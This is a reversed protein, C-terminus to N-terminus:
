RTRPSASAADASQGRTVRQRARAADVRADARRRGRRRARVPASRAAGARRASAQRLRRPEDLRDGGAPKEPATASVTLGAGDRATLYWTEAPDGEIEQAVTFDHGRTWSPHVAYAFTRYVLEPDLSAGARAADTLTATSTQLPRLEKVHRKRGRVRAPGFFRGIRHDVGALLEALILPDATLHFDADRRGRPADLEEVGARGAAIAIGYTGTGTITLDYSLPGEIATGQAPLLAALLRCALAPDDHALKVVAGRLLPYDRRDTGLM